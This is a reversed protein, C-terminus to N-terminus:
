GVVKELNEERTWWGKGITINRVPDVREEVRGDLSHAKSALQDLEVGVLKGPVDQMVQILGTNCDLPPDIVIRVRDGIKFASATKTAM